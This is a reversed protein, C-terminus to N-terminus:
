SSDNEREKLIEQCLEIAQISSRLTGRAIKVSEKEREINKIIWANDSKAYHAKDEERGM